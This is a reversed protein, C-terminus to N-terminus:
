EDTLVTGEDLYYDFALPTCERETIWDLFRLHVPHNRYREMTEMDAFETFLLYDYGRTRAGTADTGFRCKSMLGIETPWSAVMARMQGAEAASLPRPFSFLVIHQLTM